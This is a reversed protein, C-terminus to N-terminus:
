DYTQMKGRTSEQAKDSGDSFLSICGYTALVVIEPDIPHRYRLDSISLCYIVPFAALAFAYLLTTSADHRFAFWLGLIALATLTTFMVVVAPDFPQDPDFAVEIHGDHPLSWFGTWTFLFRRLSACAFSGPHSAVFQIVERKKEAMYNLEGLRIYQEEEKADTSPHAADSAWRSTDGNNGAHMVLWFADRFPIFQHFTRYNRVFWPTVALLLFVIALTSQIVWPQGRRHLRYCAWGAFLPLLSLVSPNTLATLGWLLGYGAWYALGPTRGLRMTFLFLCSLMLTTLCTDWIWDASLLIAFPFLAWAWGAWVATKQGFSERAMLFIPICTLVSFLSNLSLLVIAARKSYVGFVKFIGAVVYPYVPTMWATPGSGVTVPDSFGRGTAIARAIRGTEYGFPWHDRRPNLQGQYMFAVVVLRLVLATLVILFLSDPNRVFKRNM